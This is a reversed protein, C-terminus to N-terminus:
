PQKTADIIDVNEPLKLESDYTQGLTLDKFYYEFSSQDNTEYIMKVILGEEKWIYYTMKTAGSEGEYIYCEKGDIMEKGTYKLSDMTMQDIEGAFLFPSEWESGLQDLPMKMLVNGAPMYVYGEGTDYNLFITQGEAEADFRIRNGNVWLKFSAMRQGGSSMVYEYYYNDIKRDPNIINVAAYDDGSGTTAETEAETETPATTVIGVPSDESTETTQEKNAGSSCATLTFILVCTAAVMWIKKMFFGGKGSLNIGM